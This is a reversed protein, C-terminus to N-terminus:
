RDEKKAAEAQPLAYYVATPLVLVVNAGLTRRWTERGGLTCVESADYGRSGLAKTDLYLPPCLVWKGTPQYQCSASFTRLRSM